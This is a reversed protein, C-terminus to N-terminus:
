LALLNNYFILVLCYKIVITKLKLKEKKYKINM